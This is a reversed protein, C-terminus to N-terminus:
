RGLWRCNARRRHCWWRWGEEGTASNSSEVGEEGGLGEESGRMEDGLVVNFDEAFDGFERFMRM